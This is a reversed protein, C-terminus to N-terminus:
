VGPRELAVENQRGKNFMSIGKMSSKKGFTRTTEEAYTEVM